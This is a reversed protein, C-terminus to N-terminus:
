GDPPVKIHEPKNDRHIIGVSHAADLAQAIQTAYKIATAQDLKGILERLQTGEVYESVIYHSGDTQGFAFITLINPHNLASATQAESQLRKLFNPDKSYLSTLIKIAVKRGLRPDRALYVEGMGGSGLLRIIQYSDLKEGESYRPRNGAVAQRAEEMDINPILPQEPSHNELLSLVEQELAKDGKCANELFAKRQEQRLELAEHFLEEVQKWREQAQQMNTM